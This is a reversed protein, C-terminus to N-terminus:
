RQDGTTKPTWTRMINLQDPDCPELPPLRTREESTLSLEEGQILGDEGRVLPKGDLRYVIATM